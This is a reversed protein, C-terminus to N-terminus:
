DQQIEAYRALLKHAVLLPNQIIYDTPINRVIEAFELHKATKQKDIIFEQGKVTTSLVAFANGLNQSTIGPFNTDAAEASMLNLHTLMVDNYKNGAATIVDMTQNISFNAPYDLEQITPCIFNSGLYKNLTREYPCVPGGFINNLFNQKVEQAASLISQITQLARERDAVILPNPALVPHVSDETNSSITLEEKISTGNLSLVETLTNDYLVIGQENTQRDYLVVSQENSSLSETFIEM